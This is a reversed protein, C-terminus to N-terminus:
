LPTPALNWTATILGGSASSPGTNQTSQGSNNNTPSSAKTSPAAPPRESIPLLPNHQNASSLGAAKNASELPSPLLQQQQYAANPPCIATNLAACSTPNAIALPPNVATLPPLSLPPPLGNMLLPDQDVLVSGPEPPYVISQYEGHLWYTEM